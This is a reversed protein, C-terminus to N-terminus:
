RWLKTTMDGSGTALYPASPHFAVSYVGGSHGRLTSVCTAASCDANLLWLKATKDTSGTALYPASAHFAVSFVGDGHGRLTSACIASRDKLGVFHRRSLVAIAHKLARKVARESRFCILKQVLLASLHGRCVVALRQPLCISVLLAPWHLARSCVARRRALAEFHQAIIQSALSYVPHALLEAIFGPRPREEEVEEDRARKRVGLEECGGKSM